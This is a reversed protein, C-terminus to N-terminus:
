KLNEAELLTWYGGWNVRETRLIRLGPAATVTAASMAPHFGLLAAHNAFLREFRGVLPHAHAFHNVIVIRGGPKCIRRMEALLAPASPVVSVVYMAAIKDFHNDPYDTAQADLLRLRVHALGRRRCLRGARQLMRESIDIGTVEAQRHWLPLALGTGVGVELIRERPASALVEVARRQGPKFCAGFVEDYVPAWREYASRVKALSLGDKRVTEPLPPTHPNLTAEEAPM